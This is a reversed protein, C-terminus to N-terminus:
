QVYSESKFVQTAVLLRKNGFTNSFNLNLPGGIVPFLYMVRLVVISGASGPNYVWKNTVNGNKDYKITPTTTDIGSFDAASQVDVMTNACTMFSPLNSCVAQRFDAQGLGANQAQNTVLQRATKEATTELTQQAFFILSTQLTALILAVFPAAVAAFEIIAVGHRDRGIRRLRELLHPLMAPKACGGSM